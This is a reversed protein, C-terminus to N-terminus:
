SVGTEIPRITSLEPDIRVLRAETAEAAVSRM